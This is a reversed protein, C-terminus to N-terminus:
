LPMNATIFAVIEEVLPAATKLKFLLLAHFSGPYISLTKPDAALEAM